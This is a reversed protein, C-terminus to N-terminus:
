TAVVQKTRRNGSQIRVHIDSPFYLSDAQSINKTVKNVTCVVNLGRQVTYAEFLGRSSGGVDKYM